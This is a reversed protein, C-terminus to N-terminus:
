EDERLLQIMKCWFSTSLGNLFDFLLAIAILGVLLPLSLMMTDTM